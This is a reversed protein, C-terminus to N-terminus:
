EDMEPPLLVEVTHAKGWAKKSTPAEQREEQAGQGSFLRPGM